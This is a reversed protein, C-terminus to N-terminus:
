SVNRRPREREVGAEKHLRDIWDDMTTWVVGGFLTALASVSMHPKKGWNWYKKLEQSGQGNHDKKTADLYKSIGGYDEDIRLPYQSM